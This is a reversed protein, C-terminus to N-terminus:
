QYDVNHQVWEDRVRRPVPSSAQVKAKAKAKAKPTLTAAKPNPKLKIGQQRWPLTPKESAGPTLTMAMAEDTLEYVNSVTLGHGKAIGLIIEVPSEVSSSSSSARATPFVRLARELIQTTIEPGSDELYKRIETERRCTM